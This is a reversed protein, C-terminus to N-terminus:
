ARGFPFKLITGPERVHQLIAPVAEGALALGGAGVAGIVPAAAMVAPAEKLGKIANQQVQQPTVTKGYAAARKMTDAFSEGENPTIVQPGNDTQQQSQYTGSSLSQFIDAGGASPQQTQAPASSSSLKDFIDGM